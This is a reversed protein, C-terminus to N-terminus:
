ITHSIMKKLPDRIIVYNQFIFSENDHQFHTFKKMIKKLQHHFQTVHLILQTFQGQKVKM